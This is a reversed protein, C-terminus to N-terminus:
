EGKKLYDYLLTTFRPQQILYSMTRETEWWLLTGEVNCEERFVKRCYGAFNNWWGLEVLRKILKPIWEDTFYDPNDDVHYRRCKCHKCEPWDGENDTWEHWCKEPWLKEHIFQNENMETM